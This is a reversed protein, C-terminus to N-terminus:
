KQKRSGRNIVKYKKGEFEVVVVEDGPIGLNKARIEKLGEPTTLMRKIIDSMAANM